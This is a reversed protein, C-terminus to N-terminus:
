STRPGEESLRRTEAAQVVGIAAINVLDEASCNEHQLIHFPRRTGTLVPGV